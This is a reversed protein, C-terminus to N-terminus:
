RSRISLSPTVPSTASSDGRQSLQLQFLDCLANFIEQSSADAQDISFWWGEAKVAVFACAPRQKTVQVRFRSTIVEAGTTATGQKAADLCNETGPDEIGLALLNLVGYFSRTAVMLCDQQGALEQGRVFRAERLRWAQRGGAPSIELLDCISRGAESALASHKIMLAPVETESTVLFSKGGDTSTYRKNNGEAKVIQEPSFVEPAFSHEFDPEEWLVNRVTLGNRDELAKIFDLLALFRSSPPSFSQRGSAVIGRLEAIEEVLLCFLLEASYGANILRPLVQLPLSEHLRKAFESGQQPAISFTPYDTLGASVDADTANWGRPRLFTTGAYIGADLARTHSIGQFSMFQPSQHYHRRVINLLVEEQLLDHVAEGYHPVTKEVM